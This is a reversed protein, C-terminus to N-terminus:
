GLRVRDGRLVRGGKIVRAYIGVQNDNHKYTTSMIKPDKPLDGQALTTMVCRVVPDTVELVVEEGLRLTRDIWGDEVFGTEGSDLEVVINPRFRRADFDGADYLERLRELSATTLLHVAGLDFFPDGGADELRVERGFAESLLRDRDPDDGAVVRGDPASIRLSSADVSGEFGASFSFLDDWGARKANRVQGSEGDAVAYARDGSIGRGSIGVEALEEGLLSKVPYRWLAEVSGIESVHFEPLPEETRLSRRWPCGAYM